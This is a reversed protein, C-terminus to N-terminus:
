ARAGLEDLVVREEILAARLERVEMLLQELEDSITEIAFALQAAREQAEIAIPAVDVSRTNTPAQLRTAM